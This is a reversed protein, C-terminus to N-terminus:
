INSKNKRREIAAAYIRGIFLVKTLIVDEQEHQFNDKCLHYLIMVSRCFYDFFKFYLFPRRQQTCNLNDCADM